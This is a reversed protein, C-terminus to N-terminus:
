PAGMEQRMREAPEREHDNQDQQDEAGEILGIIATSRNGRRECFSSKLAHMPTNELWDVPARSM